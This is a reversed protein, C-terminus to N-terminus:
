TEGDGQKTARPQRPKKQTNSKANTQPKKPPTKPKKPPPPTDKPVRPPRPARPPKQSASPPSEPPTEEPRKCLEQLRSLLLSEGGNGIAAHWLGVPLIYRPLGQDDKYQEPSAGISQAFTHLLDVPSEKEICLIFRLGKSTKRAPTLYIM